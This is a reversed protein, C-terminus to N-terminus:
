YKPNKIIPQKAAFNTGFANGDDNPMCKQTCQAIEPNWILYYM